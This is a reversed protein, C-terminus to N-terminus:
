VGLLQHAKVEQQLWRIATSEDSFVKPKIAPREFILFLSLRMKSLLDKSIYAIALITNRFSLEAFYIIAEETFEHKSSSDFLIGCPKNKSQQMAYCYIYIVDEVEVVANEAFRVKLIGHNFEMDVKAISPNRLLKLTISSSMNPKNFPSLLM